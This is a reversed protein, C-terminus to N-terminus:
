DRMLQHTLVDRLQAALPSLEGHATVLSLDFQPLPPMGQAGGICMLGPPVCSEVLGVVALGAQAVAILGHLSRSSCVIRFALEADQLSEVAYHRAIDGAEFLAVPLPRRLWVEHQPHAAWVFQERRLVPYNQQPYRTVLAIDLHGAKLRVLLASSPECTLEIEALPHTEAFSSILPLVLYPAYDEPVGLRVLGRDQNHSMGTLLQDSLRLLRRANLLLEEGAPNPRLSKGDRHFLPRGVVAELRQMQMSIASQSRGLRTAARLVSGCEIVAVFSRLLVLDLTDTM